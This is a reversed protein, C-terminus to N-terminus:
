DTNYNYTLLSCPFNCTVFFIYVHLFLYKIKFRYLFFLRFFSFDRSPCFCSFSVISLPFRFLIEEQKSPLRRSKQRPYEPFFPELGETASTGGDVDARVSWTGSSLCKYPEEQILRATIGEEEALPERPVPRLLFPSLPFLFVVCITSLVVKSGM